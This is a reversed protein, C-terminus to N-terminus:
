EVQWDISRELVMEEITKVWSNSLNLIYYRDFDVGLVSDRSM